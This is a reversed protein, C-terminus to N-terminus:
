AFGLAVPAAHPGIVLGGKFGVDGTQLKASAM